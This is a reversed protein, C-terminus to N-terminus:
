VEDPTDETGNGSVINGSVENGSVENGSLDSGSKEKDESKAASKKGKAAKAKSPPESFATRFVEDLTRVPVFRIGNKVTDSFEDIDQENLAPILVTKIGNRLAAMSKERLGGIALVRGTLTIEGTMAVDGRVPVGTLASVIATALTIGASPGDKPVAGEPVHIHIDKSNFLSSDIGLEDARQRICSMAAKASEQMVDGLQGTISTKGNGDMVAVEIELMEGGVSTWALGNAMGPILEKPREERKYKPKGMYSELNRANVSIKEAEGAVLKKACKRCLSAIERELQRVGAERTYDDILRAIATDTIRVKKQSLGNRELQKPVLYKKAIMAKEEHTYSPLEIIEMRDYLPTPIAAINNATTLFLVQSLDLPIDLFHDTFSKNQEPDLVELLASTPDGKYDNSLKDIEDLLVLPNMSGARIIADVIRGPMSGLYTKRHGRIEAEDRVGGLSVRVYKRGMAEAISRAISTKGVGPPGELCIIQGKIDPVLARVAILELIREKVKRMGYHDRDLIVEAAKVDLNDQTRVGWPLSLCVDLYGRIVAAEQSGFPLKSLKRTERRLITKVEDDAEIEEIRKNYNEADAEPTGGDGLEESIVRIKERLYYERQAEDMSDSVKKEIERDLKAQELEVSIARRLLLARETVSLCDLMQQKEKLPFPYIYAASDVMSGYDTSRRDMVFQMDLDPKSEARNLAPVLEKFIKSHIAGAPDKEDQDRIEEAPIVDVTDFTDSLNASIVWARYEGMVRVHMSEEEPHRLMQTITAVVGVRHTIDFVPESKENLMIFVCRDANKASRIAAIMNAGFVDFQHPCNPFAVADPLMIIPMTRKQSKNVTKAM